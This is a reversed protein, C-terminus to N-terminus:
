AHCSVIELLEPAEQTEVKRPRGGRRRQMEARVDDLEARLQAIDERLSVVAERNREIQARTRYDV